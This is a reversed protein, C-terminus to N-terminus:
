QIAFHHSLLFLLNYILDVLKKSKRVKRKSLVRLEDEFHQIDTAEKIM